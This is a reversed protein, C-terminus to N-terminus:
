EKSSLIWALQLETYRHMIEQLYFGNMLHKEDLNAFEERAAKEAQLWLDKRMHCPNCDDLGASICINDIETDIKTREQQLFEKKKEASCFLPFDLKNCYQILKECREKVISTDM